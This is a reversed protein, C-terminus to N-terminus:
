WWTQSSSFPPVPLCWDASAGLSELCSEVLDYINEGSKTAIRYKQVM